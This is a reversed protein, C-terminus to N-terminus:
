ALQLVVAGFCMVVISSSKQVMHARGISEHFVKPWMLTLAVGYILTFLPQFGVAVWVLTVPVLMSVSNFVLKGSVNLIENVGNLSLVHVKNSKLVSVFQKRYSSVFILLFIGFLIFGVYEWFVTTAFDTDVARVKFLLFSVAFFTSSLLM